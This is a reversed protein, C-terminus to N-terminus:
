FPHWKGRSATREQAAAARRRGKRRRERELWSDHRGGGEVWLRSDKKPPGSDVRSALLAGPQFAKILGAGCGSAAGAPLGLPPRLALPALLGRACCGVAGGGSGPTSRRCFSRCRRSKLPSSSSAGGGGGAACRGAAAFCCCPTSARCCCVAAPGGGRWCCCWCSFLWCFTVLRPTAPPPLFATAPRQM